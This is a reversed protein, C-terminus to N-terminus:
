GAGADATEGPFRRGARILATAAGVSAIVLALAAPSLRGGVVANGPIWTSALSCAQLAALCPLYWTGAAEIWFAYLAFLSIMVAFSGQSVETRTFMLACWIVVTAVTWAGLAWQQRSAGALRRRSSARALSVALLPVAINWWGLERFAHIFEDTRRQDASTASFSAADSWNGELQFALNASKREVIEKWSLSGYAEAIDRGVSRNDVQDRGALHMKLLRDGPPAYYRQYAMWPAVVLAFVLAALAWLATEKRFCRWAVWPIFPILSFAAGGHSLCALGALVAGVVAGRLRSPSGGLVWVGFTGCVFAGASLKPWTFLTHFLFFGNLSAAMVWFLARGSAIGVSRLLGYLAFVWSLQFWVSATASATQDSFGMGATVPWGILQWGEQLPPRDSSLWGAGLERPRQGHYILDAFDFPLRDDGPMGAVFRNSALDYFDRQAHFLHLVGIYFMGILVAALGIRLWERDRGDFPERALLNIGFTAVFIAVSLVRGLAPSAFYAWFVGYGILAMGACAVLPVWCPRVCDRRAVCRALTIFVAGYLFGNALWATLTEMLGYGRTGGSGRGFPLSLAVGGPAGGAGVSARLTVLRGRWGFPMEYDVIGWKRGSNVARLPILDRTVELEM